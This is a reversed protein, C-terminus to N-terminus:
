PARVGCKVVIELSRESTVFDLDKSEYENQTYISVAGGGSLTAKISAAELAQSVRAAIEAAPTDRKIEMTRYRSVPADLGSVSDSTNVHSM